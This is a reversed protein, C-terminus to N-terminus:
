FLVQLGLNIYQSNLVQSPSGASHPGSGAFRDRYSLSVGMPIPFKKELYLPLTSYGIGVIYIQETSDSDQTLVDYSFGRHGVVVDKLKWAYRYLLSASFGRPLEYKVGGEIEFRDGLERYVRERNATIPNTVDSPVRRTAYDPLVKDYRFTSSLVLDGPQSIESAGAQASPPRKNWLNSLVYDEHLRLLIANAGTSWYVDSLDDPDGRRGTALRAGLTVALAADQTRLYQYKGGLTIDGLGDGNWDQIKKFGFGPIRGANTLLGPGLLRQVDATSFRRTSFGPAASCPAIAAFPLVPAKCSAPVFPNAILAATSTNLVVNASSGPGSNLGAEVSNSAWFYPIDIGVTLRDTLGYQGGLDEINYLYRYKVHSDGISADGGPVFPNLPKLLSFITSDLHRNNFDTAIDETAGHPNYRQEVPLYFLSDLTVRGVGKPLVSADEARSQGAWWPAIVAILLGVVLLRGRAAMGLRM